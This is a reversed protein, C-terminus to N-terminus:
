NFLPLVSILDEETLLLMLYIKSFSPHKSDPVCFPPGHVKNFCFSCIVTKYIIPAFYATRVNM